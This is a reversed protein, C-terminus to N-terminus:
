VNKSHIVSGVIIIAAGIIVIGLVIDIYLLYTELLMVVYCLAFSVITSVVFYVFKMASSDFWGLWNFIIGVLSYSVIFTAIKVFIEGFISINSETMSLTFLWCMFNALGEFIGCAFFIYIAILAIIGFLIRKM